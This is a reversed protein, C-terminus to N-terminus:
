QFRAFAGHLNIRAEQVVRIAETKDAFRGLKHRMGDARIEAAWKGRPADWSIGKVGSTNRSSIKSNRLNESATALRLNAKRNDLGDGNIHDVDIASTANMILRHMRITLNGDPYRSASRYAYPTAGKAVIVCWNWQGIMAADEADIVAVYGKTLPVYAVDGSVIVPRVKVAKM